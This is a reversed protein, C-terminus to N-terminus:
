KLHCIAQANSSSNGHKDLLSDTFGEDIFLQHVRSAPTANLDGALVTVDSGQSNVFNRAFELVQKAQSERISSYTNQFYLNALFYKM